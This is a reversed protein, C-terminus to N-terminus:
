VRITRQITMACSDNTPDYNTRTAKRSDNTPDNNPEANRAPNTRQTIREHSNYTACRQAKKTPQKTPRQKGKTLLSNKMHISEFYSRPLPLEQLSNKCQLSTTPTQTPVTGCDCWTPRYQSHAISSPFHSL